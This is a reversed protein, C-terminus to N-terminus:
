CNEFLLFDFQLFHIIINLRLRNNINNFSLKVNTIFINNLKISPIFLFVFPFIDIFAFRFFM